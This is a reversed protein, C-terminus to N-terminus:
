HARVAVKHAEEPAIATLACESENRDDSHASRHNAKKLEVVIFDYNDAEHPITCKTCCKINKPTWEFNGGCQDGLHYLPCYCFLCNFQEPDVADHCPFCVCDMNGFFKYSNKM